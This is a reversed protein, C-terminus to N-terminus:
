KKQGEERALGFFLQHLYVSMWRHIFPLALVLTDFIMAFGKECLSQWEEPGLRKSNRCAIALRDTLHTVLRYGVWAKHLHFYCQWFNVALGFEVRGCGAHGLM